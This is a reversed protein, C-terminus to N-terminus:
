TTKENEKKWGALLLMAQTNLLDDEWHEVKIGSVVIKRGDKKWVEEVKEKKM